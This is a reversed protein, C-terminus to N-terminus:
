LADGKKLLSEIMDLAKELADNLKEPHKGGAQAMDKRGGGKGDILGAIGQIVRGADFADPM